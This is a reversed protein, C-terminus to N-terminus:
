PTDSRVVSLTPRRSREIESEIAYCLDAYQDASLEEFQRHIVLVGPARRQIARHVEIPDDCGIDSAVRRALALNPLFRPSM